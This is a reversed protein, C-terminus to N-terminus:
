KDIRECRVTIRRSLSTNCTFLTLDYEQSLMEEIATVKLAELAVVEYRFVNGDLDTFQVTDGPSLTSLGGFFCDYNHGAIVLNDLYASGFYRNPAIKLKPYSCQSIVPLNLGLAPIQLTGIYTEGDIETEPMPMQPNLVYDPIEVPATPMETPLEAPKTPASTPILEELRSVAVNAAKEARRADYVNYGTLFLAAALLLLGLLILFKGKKNKM